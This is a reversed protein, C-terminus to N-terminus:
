RLMNWIRWKGIQKSKNWVNVEKMMMVTTIMMMAKGFFIMVYLQTILLACTAHRPDTELTFEFHYCEFLKLIFNQKTSKTIQMM